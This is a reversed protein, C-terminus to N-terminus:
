SSLAILRFQYYLSSDKILFNNKICEKLIEKKLEYEQVHYWENPFIYEEKEHIKHYKTQLVLYERDINM